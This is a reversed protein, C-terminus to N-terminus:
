AAKAQKREGRRGTNMDRKFQANKPRYNGSLALHTGRRNKQVRGGGGGVGGVGGGGGGGGGGDTGNLGKKPPPPPRPGREDSEAKVRAIRGSTSEAWSNTENKQWTKRRPSAVGEREARRRINM